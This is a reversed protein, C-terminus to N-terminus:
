VKATFSHSLVQCHVLALGSAARPKDCCEHNLACLWTNPKAADRPRGVAVWSCTECFHQTIRGWLRSLSNDSPGASALAHVSAKHLQPVTRLRILFMEKMICLLSGQKRYLFIGAVGALCGQRMEEKLFENGTVAVVVSLLKGPIFLVRCKPDAWITKQHGGHSMMVPLTM